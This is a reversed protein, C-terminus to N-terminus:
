KKLNKPEKLKQVVLPRYVLKRGMRVSEMLAISTVRIQKQELHVNKQVDGFGRYPEVERGLTIHPSLGKKERGFGQKGLSKELHNFLRFLDGSKEVGVWMVGERGRPFFGIKDLTLSFSKQFRATEVMAMHLYEIDDTTIEGLFHLTIHFNEKPTYNGKKCLTQAQKQVQELCDKVEEELEIAIFARM